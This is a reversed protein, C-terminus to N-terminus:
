EGGGIPSVVRPLREHRRVPAVCPWPCSRLWQQRAAAQQGAAGNGGAAARGEGKSRQQNRRLLLGVRAVVLQSVLRLCGAGLVAGM